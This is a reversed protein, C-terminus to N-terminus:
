KDKIFAITDLYEIVSKEIRNYEEETFDNVNHGKEKLLINIAEVKDLQDKTNPYLADFTEALPLEITEKGKLKDYETDKILELYPIRLIQCINMLLNTSPNEKKGNELMTIYAPSVHLRRALESKSMNKKERYYSIKEAITNM